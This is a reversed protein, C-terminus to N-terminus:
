KTEEGEQLLRSIVPLLQAEDCRLDCASIECHARPADAALSAAIGAVDSISLVVYVEDREAFTQPYRLAFEEGVKVTGIKGGHPIDMKAAPPHIVGLKRWLDLASLGRIHETMLDVSVRFLPGLGALKREADRARARALEQETAPRGGWDRKEM